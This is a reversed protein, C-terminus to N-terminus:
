CTAIEQVWEVRAPNFPGVAYSASIVADKMIESEHVAKLNYLHITWALCDLSNHRLHPIIITFSWSLKCVGSPCVFLVIYQGGNIDGDKEM